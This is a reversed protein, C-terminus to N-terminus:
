VTVFAMNALSRRPESAMPKEVIGASKEWSLSKAEKLCIEVVEKRFTPDTM